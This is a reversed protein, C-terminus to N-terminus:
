LSIRPLNDTVICAIILSKNKEKRYEANCVIDCASNHNDIYEKERADYIWM